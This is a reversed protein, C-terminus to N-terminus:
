KNAIVLVTQIVGGTDPSILSRIRINATNFYTSSFLKPFTRGLRAELRDLQKETLVCMVRESSQLFNLAQDDNVINIQRLGTYFPLNRVFVGAVGLPENAQRFQHIASATKEVASPRSPTLVSFHLALLTLVSGLAIFMPVHRRVRLFMSLALSLGCAIIIGGAIKGGSISVSDFLPIARLIFVGIAMWTFGIFLTAGDFLRDSSSRPRSNLRELIIHALLIALPPLVPLIYRPQKGISLTYFLLPVATWVLLRVEIVTLRRSKRLLNKLIPAFLGLFPSWPFLGGVLIPLYFWASRSPNFTETSFRTINEAIFFRALYEVGHEDVMMLFWPAAILVGLSVALALTLASSGSLKFSELIRIRRPHEWAKISGIVLLPLLVAVPGKTLFGVAAASSALLYCKRSYTLYSSHGLQETSSGCTAALGAWTSLIIFFTLPLDPLTMRSLSFYGFNTAVIVGALLAVNVNYWRFGVVYTLLILGLGALAAPLRATAENVGFTKYSTAILWYHFVPKEFRPTYNFYPTLWDGSELMERGSEAYYAEDSDTIVSRGLGAFFTLGALLVLLAIHRRV